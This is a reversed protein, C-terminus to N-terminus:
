KDLANMISWCALLGGMVFFSEVPKEYNLYLLYYLKERFNTIDNVLPVMFRDDFRYLFIERLFHFYIILINVQSGFYDLFDVFNQNRGLM